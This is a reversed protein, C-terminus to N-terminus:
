CGQTFRDGRSIPIRDRAHWCGGTPNARAWGGQFVGPAVLTLGGFGEHRRIVSGTLVPVKVLTEIAAGNLLRPQVRPLLQVSVVASHRVGGIEVFRFAPPCRSCPQQIQDAPVDRSAPQQVDAAAMSEQKVLRAPSAVGGDPQLKGRAGARISSVRELEVSSLLRQLVEGGLLRRPTELDDHQRVHQLM